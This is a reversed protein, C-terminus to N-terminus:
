TSGKFPAADLAAIAIGALTLHPVFLPPQNSEGALVDAFLPGAGGTLFIQPQSGGAALQTVLERVAGVAGWYLGSRIAEITSKGLAPPSGSLEVMPLLDTFEHLARASTGVGPLIAGGAFAGGASVLTVTLATGMDIVIAPEGAARIRNAAVVNALRDLGVREPHDVEVALPLDTHALEFVKTAGRQELWAVLKAAGPRNVSAIAWAHDAPGQPVLAAIEQEGWDPGVTVARAVHPLPRAFPPEFVGLKVRSNGVDVAVLPLSQSKAM